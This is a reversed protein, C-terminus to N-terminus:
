GPPPMEDQREMEMARMNRDQSAHDLGADERDAERMISAAEIGTKTAQAANKATESKTKEIDAQAQAAQMQIAMQQMPDPQAQENLAGILAGRIVKRRGVYGTTGQM